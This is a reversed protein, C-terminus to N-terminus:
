KKAAKQQAAKATEEATVDRLGHSLLQPVLHDPVMVLHDQDPELQIRDITIAGMNDPCRLVRMSQSFHNPREFISPHNM